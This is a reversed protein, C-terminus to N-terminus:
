VSSEPQVSIVEAQTSAALKRTSSTYPTSSGRTRLAWESSPQAHLRYLCHEPGGSKNHSKEHNEGYQSVGYQHRGNGLHIGFAIAPLVGIIMFYFGQHRGQLGLVVLGNRCFDGPQPLQGRVVVVFYQGVRRVVQVVHGVRHFLGQRGIFGGVRHVGQLLHLAVAFEGQHVALPQFHLGQQFLAVHFAGPLFAPPQQLVAGLGVCEKFGDGLRPIIEVRGLLGHVGKGGGRVVLQYFDVGGDLGPVPFSQRVRHLVQAGLM